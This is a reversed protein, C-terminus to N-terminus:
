QLQKRPSKLDNSVVSGNIKYYINSYSIPVFLCEQSVTFRM